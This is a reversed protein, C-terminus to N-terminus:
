SQTSEKRIRDLWKSWISLVLLMYLRQSHDRGHWPNISKEGAADHEKLMQEIFKMNIQVGSEELGPFPDSSRLHDLLLQRMDGYDTRFWEGIPIAFGQKPRDVIHDPLYKRAVQKLLGKREGNPMRQLLPCQNAAIILEKDLFPTRVELASSMSASDTKRLLDGPLYQLLDTAAVDTPKGFNDCFALLSKSSNHAPSLNALDSTDFISMLDSYGNNISARLFRNAYNMKSYQHAQPFFRHLAGFFRFSRIKGLTQQASYRKYGLFLEDGGDGALAVKIHESAAKSVWYTPLLSSDGFPLGIQEILMILDNAPNTECELTTHDTGIVNATELAAESENYRKDPMRVTYTKIDPKYQRTISSVLSSDIGGSLFVGLPVDCSLRARISQVLMKDLDDVSLPSGCGSESRITRVWDKDDYTMWRPRGDLFSIGCGSQVSRIHRLPTPTAKWGYRIWTLADHKHISLPITARSNTSLKTLGNATSSFGILDHLGLTYLPKEGARDRVSILEGDTADWFATAFMADVRNLIGLKSERWGHVLVETDSHDTEFVHGAAELEKRLERHNYICGNFVVAVVPKEPEVESAIIPTQGPQYTLDPRLRDGDHVMPQSGGEHDIISLRRHVLAVDVITGDDRIARDRFRGQGDPGRHKISDDLIDLWAEPIAELHPPPPGDKPDHIKIVGAIGCM